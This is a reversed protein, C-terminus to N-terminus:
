FEDYTKKVEELIGDKVFDLFELGEEKNVRNCM